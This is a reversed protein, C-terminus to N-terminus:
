RWRIKSETCAFAHDSLARSKDPSAPHPPEKVSRPASHTTRTASSIYQVERLSPAQPLTIRTAFSTNRSNVAISYHIVYNYDRAAWLGNIRWITALFPSAVVIQNNM